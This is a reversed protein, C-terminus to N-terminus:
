DGLVLQFDFKDVMKNRIVGILYISNVLIYMSVYMCVNCNSSVYELIFLVM